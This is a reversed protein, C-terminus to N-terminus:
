MIISFGALDSGPKLWEKEVQHVEAAKSGDYSWKLLKALEKEEGEAVIEVSGDALNRVFGDLGLADAADKAYYRFSVGQVKGRILIRLRKRM